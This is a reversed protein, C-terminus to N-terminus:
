EVFSFVAGQFAELQGAPAFGFLFTLSAAEYGLSFGAFADCEWTNSETLKLPGSEFSPLPGGAYQSFVIRGLPDRSAFFPTGSGPSWARTAISRARPLRTSIGSSCPASCRRRAAALPKSWSRGLGRSQFSFSAGASVSNLSSTDTAGGTDAPPAGGTDLRFFAGQFGELRGAPAFGFLYSLSAAEAPDFDAFASCTWTRDKSLELAGSAFSPLPGGTYETFVIRNM